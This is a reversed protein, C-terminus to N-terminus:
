FPPIFDGRLQSQAQAASYFPVTDRQTTITNQSFYVFKIAVWFLLLMVVSQDWANAFSSLSLILAAHQDVPVVM